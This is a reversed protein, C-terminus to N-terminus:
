DINLMSLAREYEVGADLLEGLEANLGRRTEEATRASQRRYEEECFDKAMEQAQEHNFHEPGALLAELVARLQVSNCTVGHDGVFTAELKM